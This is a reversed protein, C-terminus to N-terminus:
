YASIPLMTLGGGATARASVEYSRNQRLYLAATSSRLRGDVKMRVTVDYRGTRLRLVTRYRTPGPLRFSAQQSRLAASAGRLTIRIDSIRVGSSTRVSGYLVSRYATRAAADDRPTTGSALVYDPTVDVDYAVPGDLEGVTLDVRTAGPVLLFAALALVVAASTAAVATSRLTRTRLRAPLLAFM